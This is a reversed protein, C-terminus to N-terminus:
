VALLRGAPPRRRHTRPQRAPSCAGYSHPTPGPHQDPHNNGRCQKAERRLGTHLAAYTVLNPNIPGRGPFRETDV